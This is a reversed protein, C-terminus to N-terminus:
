SSQRLGLRPRATGDRLFMARACRDFAYEITKHQEFIERPGLHAIEFDGVFDNEERQAGELLVAMVHRQRRICVDYRPNSAPHFLFRSSFPDKAQWREPRPMGGMM